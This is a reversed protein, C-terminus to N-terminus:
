SATQAPTVPKRPQGAQFARDCARQFRATLRRGTEGPLQGLRRRDAQLRRVEEVATRRTAAEDGRVGMTNNALQERWKRALIEAPSTGAEDLVEAPTLAEVRTCLQELQKLKREPDLDTGRFHDPYANVLCAVAQGFRTSLKRRLEGPVEPAQRWRNQIGRVSEVLEDPAAFAAGANALALAELEACLTERAAVREAAAEREGEQLREFVRDCATRFRQWVAESRTRRVPGIAKWKAQAQKVAPVAVALDDTDVLAEVCVCLAEKRELNRAWEQKLKVLDAKRRAFFESCAARFRNWLHHQEKRPLPSLTKWEAQLETIRQATKIWDTSTRLREAEEVLACKRERNRERKAAQAEFFRECCPYVVDHAVKFRQWLAVGKDKPVDAAQRWRTMLDRFRGALEVDELDSTIESLAEMERCLEEQIGLNAWRQWDAFDRLERVRGLLATHALRLRRTATDRDHRTPLPPVDNLVRRAARLQREAEVLELKEKVVAADIKECLRGLRALNAHEAHNREAKAAVALARHRGGATEKRQELAAVRADTDPDGGPSGSRVAEMLKRWTKDLEPWRAKVDDHDDTSILQEIESALAELKRVREHRAVLAEHRRVCSSAAEEFQQALAVLESALAVDGEAEAADPALQAWEKRVRLLQEVALLGNLADVRKCLSVHAALVSARQETVRRTEVLTAELELLRGEVARRAAAFREAVAPTTIEDIATWRVLIEDLANRGRQLDDISALAELATCVSAWEEAQGGVPPVESAFQSLVAKARRAVAKQKSRKAIGKLMTRDMASEDRALRDYAALAVTKDDAKIAISLLEARETIRALSEHAVDVHNARRAVVGLAKVDTLLALAVRSVAEAKASRAVATLDRENSLIELGMKADAVGDASIVLERIAAVAEARVGEDAESESRVIDALAQQDTVRSVAVRRVNPAEDHRAIEILLDQAEGALERVAAERASPDDNQWEPRFRFKELLKM